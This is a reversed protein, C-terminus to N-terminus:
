AEDSHTPQRVNLGAARYIADIVRMQAVADTATTPFPTGQTIASAFARLQYTYTAEGSLHETRTGQATRVTLRHFMQPLVFNTVHLVGRDGTARVALRLLTRSLMSCTMHGTVDNPFRFDAEMRRDVQPSALWAKARVVEPESGALFRQVNIAYTGGDMTAGGALNFQYRIDRMFPLPFCMWSELHRLTGIEGSALIAQMRAALPHYRYHFAEMVVRDPHAAAADAVLQAEDANATFPKECLVHKGAALAKITWEGHLGNPIPIYVADITPDALLDAYTAHVQAIHHKRAFTQARAPDRAAIAAVTVGDVRRAPNILANQVINAAGLIGIRLQAM